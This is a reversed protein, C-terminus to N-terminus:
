RVNILGPALVIQGASDVWKHNIRPHVKVIPKELPFKPGLHIIMSLSGVKTPFEVSYEEDFSIETVSILVHVTLLQSIVM